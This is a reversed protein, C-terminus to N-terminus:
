TVIPTECAIANGPIARTDLMMGWTVAKGKVGTVSDTLLQM